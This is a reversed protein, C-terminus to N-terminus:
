VNKSSDIRATREIGQRYHSRVTRTVVIEVNDDDELADLLDDIEDELKEIADESAENWGVSTSRRM